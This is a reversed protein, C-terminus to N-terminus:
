STSIARTARCPSTSTYRHGFHPRSSRTRTFGSSLYFNAPAPLPHSSPPTEQCATTSLHNKLSPASCPPRKQNPKSLLVNKTPALCFIRKKQTQVLIFIAKKNKRERQFPLSLLPPFRRHNGRSGREVNSPSATGRSLGQEPPYLTRKEDLQLLFTGRPRRAM